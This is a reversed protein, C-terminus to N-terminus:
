RLHDAQFGTFLVVFFITLSLWLNDFQSITLVLLPLKVHLLSLLTERLILNRQPGSTLGQWIHLDLLLINGCSLCFNVSWILDSNIYLNCLTNPPRTSMQTLPGSNVVKTGKSQISKKHFSPTNTSLFPTFLPLCFMQGAPLMYTITSIYWLM